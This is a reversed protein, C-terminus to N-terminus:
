SIKKKHRVDQLVVSTFGVVLTNLYTIVLLLLYHPSV